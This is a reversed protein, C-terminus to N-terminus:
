QPGGQRQVLKMHHDGLAVIQASVSVAKCRKTNFELLENRVDEHLLGIQGVTVGPNNDEFTNILAQIADGLAIAELAVSNQSM